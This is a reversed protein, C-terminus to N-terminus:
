CSAPAPSERPIKKSNPTERASRTRNERYVARYVRDVADHVEPAASHRQYGLHVAASRHGTQRMSVGLSVGERDAITIWTRRLSHQDVEGKPIGCAELAKHFVGLPVRTRLPKGRYAGRMAQFILEDPEREPLREIVAEPVAAVKTGAKARTKHHRFTIENRRRDVDRGLLGLVEGARAGTFALTAFYAVWRGNQYGDLWALVTHLEDETLPRKVTQSGSISEVNPWPATVRKRRYAWKSVKRLCNLSVRATNPNYRALLSDRLENLEAETIESVPADAFPGLRSLAYRYHNETSDSWKPRATVTFAAWVQRLKPDAPRGTANLEKALEKAMREAASRDSTRTSRRKLVRGQQEVQLHLNPSGTRSVVYVKFLASSRRAAQLPAHAEDRKSDMM